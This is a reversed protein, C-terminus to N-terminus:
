KVEMQVSAYPYVGVKTGPGHRPLLEALVEGWDQCWIVKEEAGLESRDLQSLRPAFVIVKAAKALNKARGGPKWNRGGYNTGFRGAWQHLNQGEHSYTILVVDGGERLSLPICWTSRAFQSEDPYGNIVLLDAERVAETYYVERAQKSAQRHEAVMDGAYLGVVERKNNLIADVKFHLGALRACEELDLRLENDDVRGLGTTAHGFWKKHHHDITELGSVGPMVLKGGGGFGANPHPILSGVGVRLDCNAFERNVWVPTGRSTTGVNVVNDWINHNYVNYKRVIEEGLKAALEPYILPRHTGPACLFRIHQDTFGGAHLEELVFPVIRSAPTPKPLDDFLIVAEQKGQALEALRPSGLPNLLAARMQEDNLAPLDHGAMRCETINWYGPFSLDIDNDGFWANVRISIKQM